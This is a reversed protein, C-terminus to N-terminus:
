LALHAIVASADVAVVEEGGRLVELTLEVLLV